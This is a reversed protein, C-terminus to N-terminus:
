GYGAPVASVTVSVISIIPEEPLSQKTVVFQVYNSSAGASSAGAYVSVEAWVEVMYQGDAWGEPIIGEIPYIFDHSANIQNDVVDLTSSFSAIVATTLPMGAGDRPDYTYVKAKVYIEYNAQDANYVDAIFEVNGAIDVVEQGGYFFALLDNGIKVPNGEKDLFWVKLSGSIGDGEVPANWAGVLSTVLYLAAAIIVFGLVIIVLLKGKSGKKSEKAQQPSGM